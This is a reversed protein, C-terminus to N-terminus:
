KQINFSCELVASVSVGFVHSYIALDAKMSPKKSVREFWLPAGCRRHLWVATQTRISPIVRKWSDM